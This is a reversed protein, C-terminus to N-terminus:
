RVNYIYTNGAVIIVVKLPKSDNEIDLPLSVVFRYKLSELPNISYLNTFTEIDSGNSEETVASCNYEYNNDYVVKVKMLSDQEVASTKLSKVNMILEFYKQSDDKAQLYTYYGTPNSPLIEKSFASGIINFECCNEVTIKDQITIETENKLIDKNPETQSITFNESKDDLKSITSKNKREKDNSDDKKLNMGIVISSILVIVVIVLVIIGIKKNKRKEM